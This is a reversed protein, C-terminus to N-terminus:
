TLLSCVMTAVLWITNVARALEVNHLADLRNCGSEDQRRVSVTLVNVTVIRKTPGLIVVLFFAISM